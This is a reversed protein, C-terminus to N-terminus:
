RTGQLPIREPVERPPEIGLAKWNVVLEKGPRWEVTGQQVLWAIRLAITIPLLANWVLGGPIGPFLLSILFGVGSEPLSHLLEVFSYGGLFGRLIEPLDWSLETVNFWILAFVAASTVVGAARLVPHKKVLSDLWEALSRARSAVAAVARQIPEPMKALAKQMWDGVNPFKLGIDFYLRLLPVKKVLLEGAKALWKKGDAILSRIKGPLERAAGVWSTAKVGLLKKFEEWKQPASQFMDWLQKLRTTLSATRVPGGIVADGFSALVEATLERRVSDTGAKKGSDFFSLARKLGEREDQATTRGLLSRRDEDGEAYAEVTYVSSKRDLVVRGLAEGSEM